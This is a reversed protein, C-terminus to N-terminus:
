PVHTVGPLGMGKLLFQNGKPKVITLNFHVLFATGQLYGLAAILSSQPGSMLMFCFKHHLKQWILLDHWTPVIPLTDHLWPM